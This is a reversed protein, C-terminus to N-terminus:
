LNKLADWRPDASTDKQKNELSKLLEISESNCEEEKIHVAKKPLHLHIIQYIYDNLDLEYAEHPLIMLMESQESGHDSFKVILEEKENMLTDLSDGCRDCTLHFTGKFVFSLEFMTERKFFTLEVHVDADQIISYEFQEFFTRNVDFEFQHEGDKLGVFPIILEKQGRKM